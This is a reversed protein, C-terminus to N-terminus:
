RAAKAAALKAAQKVLAQLDRVSFKKDSYRASRVQKGDGELLGRPDALRVGDFFILTVKDKGVVTQVVNKGALSFTLCNGWKIDERLGAASRLVADRLKLVLPKMPSDLAALYEEVGPNDAQKKAM